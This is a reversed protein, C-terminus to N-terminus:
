PTKLAAYTETYYYSELSACNTNGTGTPTYGEGASIQWNYDNSTTTSVRDTADWGVPLSLTSGSFDETLYVVTQQANVGLVLLLAALLTLLAKKM